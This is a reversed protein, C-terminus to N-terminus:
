NQRLNWGNAAYNRPEPLAALQKAAIDPPKAASHFLSAARSATIGCHLSPISCLMGHELCRYDIRSCHSSSIGRPFDSQRQISRHRQLTFRLHRSAFNVQRSMFRNHQLVFRLHHTIVRDHRLALKCQPMALNNAAIHVSRAAVCAQTAAGCAQTAAIYAQTAAGYAERLFFLSRGGNPGQSQLLSVPIQLVAPLASLGPVASQLLVRTHPPCALAAALAARSLAAFRRFAQHLNTKKAANRRPTAANDPSKLSRRATHLPSIGTKRTM